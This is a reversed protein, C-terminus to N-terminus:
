PSRSAPTRDHFRRVWSVFLRLARATATPRELSKLAKVGEAWYLVTGAVWHPDELLSAVELRASERVHEVPERRKRQTGGPHRHASRATPTVQDRRDTRGDFPYRSVLRFTGRRVPILKWSRAIPRASDAFSRGM